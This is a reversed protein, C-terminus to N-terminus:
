IDLSDYEEFGVAVQLFTLYTPHNPRCPNDSTNGVEFAYEFIHDRGEKHLVGRLTHNKVKLLRCHVVSRLIHMFQSNSERSEEGEPVSARELWVERLDLDREAGLLREVQCLRFQGSDNLLLLGQFQM